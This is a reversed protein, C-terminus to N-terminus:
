LKLPKIMAKKNLYIHNRCITIYFQLITFTHDKACPKRLNMKLKLPHKKLHCKCFVKTQSEFLMLLQIGQGHERM